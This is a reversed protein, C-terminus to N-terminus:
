AERNYFVVEVTKVSIDVLTSMKIDQLWCMLTNTLIIIANEM